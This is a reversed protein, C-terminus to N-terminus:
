LPNNLCFYNWWKIASHLTGHYGPVRPPIPVIQKEVIQSYNLYKTLERRYDNVSSECLVNLRRLTNVFSETITKIVPDKRNNKKEEETINYLHSIM